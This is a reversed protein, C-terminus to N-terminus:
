SAPKETKAGFHDDESTPEPSEKATENGNASPTETESESDTDGAAAKDQVPKATEKEPTKASTDTDNSSIEKKVVDVVKKAVESAKKKGEAEAAKTAEADAKKKQAEAIRANAAEIKEATKPNELNKRKRNGATDMYIVLDANQKGVKFHRVARIDKFKQRVMSIDDSSELCHWGSTTRAHLVALKM